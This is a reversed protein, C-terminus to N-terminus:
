DMICIFITPNLLLAVVELCEIEGVALHKRGERWWWLLLRGAGKLMVYLLRLVYGCCDAGVVIVLDAKVSLSVM